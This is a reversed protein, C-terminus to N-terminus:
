HNRKDDYRPAPAGGSGSVRRASVAGTAKAQVIGTTFPVDIEATFDAGLGHRESQAARASEGLRTERRKGIPVRSSTRYSSCSGDFARILLM